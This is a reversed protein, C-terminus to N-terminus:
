QTITKFAMYYTVISKIIKSFTELDLRAVSFGRYFMPRKANGIMLIFCKQLEVPLEYWNSRYLCGCMKDYSENALKGFFCYLFLTLLSISFALLLFLIRFDIHKLQLDLQFLVCSLYIITSILLIMIFSGYVEASDLFWKKISAHFRILEFLLEKRNSINDPRKLKTVLDQFMGYFAQHNLCMSIFLTLLPLSVFLYAEGM